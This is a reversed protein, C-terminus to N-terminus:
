DEYAVWALRAIVERNTPTQGGMFRQWALRTELHECCDVADAIATRINREVQNKSVGAAKAIAPYLEKTTSMDPNVAHLEVARRILHTGRLSEAFGLDHMTSRLIGNNMM